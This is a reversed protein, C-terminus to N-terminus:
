RPGSEPGSNEQSNNGEESGTYLKLIMENGQWDLIIKDKEISKVKYGEIDEGEEVYITKKNRVGVQPNNIMAKKVDGAMIIGYLIIKRPPKPPEKKREIIKKATPLNKPVKPKTVWEKRAPSFINRSSVIDFYGTDNKDTDSMMGVLKANEIYHAMEPIDTKSLSVPIKKEASFFYIAVSLISLLIVVCFLVLNLSYLSYQLGYFSSLPIQTKSNKQNRVVNETKTM